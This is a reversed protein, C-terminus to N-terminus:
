KGQFRLHMDRKQVELMQVRERLQALLALDVNQTVSPPVQVIHANAAALLAVLKRNDEFLKQNEEKLRLNWEHVNQLSPLTDPAYGQETFCRNVTKSLIAM